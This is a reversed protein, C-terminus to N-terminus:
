FISSLDFASLLTLWLVTMISPQKIIISGQNNMQQQVTTNQIWDAFSSVRTFGNPYGKECGQDSGFSVIGIQKWKGDPMKYNMPGGSDGNCTGQHNSAGTCIMGDTIDSAYAEHCEENTIVTANTKRLVSSTMEVVGDPSFSMMVLTDTLQRAITWVFPDFSIQIPFPCRFDSSDLIVTFLRLIGIPISIIIKAKYFEQHIEDDDNVNHAGLTVHVVRVNDLCHAATLIWRDSILSGGCSFFQNNSKELVLFVQWPFENPFTEVGGVIRMWTNDNSPSNAVGCGVGDTQNIFKFRTNRKVRRNVIRSLQIENRTNQRLTISILKSSNNPSDNHNTLCNMDIFDFM